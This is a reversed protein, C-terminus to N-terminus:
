LQGPELVVQAALRFGCRDHQEGMNWEPGDIRFPAPAGLVAATREFIQLPEARDRHQVAVDVLHHLLDLAVDGEVGRTRGRERLRRRPSGGRGARHLDLIGLQARHETDGADVELLAVFPEGDDVCRQLTSPFVLFIVDVFKRPMRMCAAPSRTAATRSGNQPVVTRAWSTWIVISLKVKEGGSSVTFTPSVTVQVLWSSM